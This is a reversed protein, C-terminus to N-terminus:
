PGSFFLNNKFFAYTQTWVHKGSTNEEGAAAMTCMDGVSPVGTASRSLLRIPLSRYNESSYYSDHRPDERDVADAQIFSIRRNCISYNGIYYM